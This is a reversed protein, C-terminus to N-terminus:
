SRYASVERAILKNGNLSLSTAMLRYARRWKDKQVEVKLILLVQKLILLIQM